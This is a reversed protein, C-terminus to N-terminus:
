GVGGVEAREEKLANYEASGRKLGEWVAYPESGPTYAHLCHKGPPALSPDLISPISILVLNQPADVGIEWDNVVIHHIELDPPLDQFHFYVHPLVHSPRM